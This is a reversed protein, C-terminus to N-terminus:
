KKDFYEGSKQNRINFVFDLSCKSLFYLNSISSYFVIDNQVIQMRHNKPLFPEFLGFIVRPPWLIGPNARFRAYHDCIGSVGGSLAHFPSSGV